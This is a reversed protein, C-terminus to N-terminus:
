KRGLFAGFLIAVGALAAMTRWPNQRIYDDATAAMEKGAVLTSAQAERAKAMAMELTQMARVRVEDAKTGTLAAADQLLTQADKILVHVDNGIVEVDRNISKLTSEPM